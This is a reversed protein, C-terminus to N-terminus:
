GSNGSLHNLNAAEGHGALVGAIEPDLEGNAVMGNIIDMAQLHNMGSRYPRDETLAQYIDCCALLRSEFSLDAGSLRHSYGRGNLKEHHSACWAAIQELGRVNNLIDESVSVHNRMVEFEADDLPGPKELIALPTSLKGVDHLCAAIILRNRKEKEIKCIRSLRDILAAVGRSHNRTFVSKADIIYAFIDCVRLLDATSLDVRMSPIEERLAQDIHDDRLKDAFEPTAVTALAQAVRPSYLRGSLARTHELMERVLSDRGNGMKLVLDMNDALRLIAARLPIDEGTLNHFGTGDWNEHHHLIIGTVDGTFPFALANQEGITCHSQFHELRRIDGPGAKLMYSTLANDHLVACCAMDFADANSVGMARCLHASVYAARKGHNSTVGLLDQEVFDLARSLAFLLENLPVQM